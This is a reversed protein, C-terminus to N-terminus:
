TTATASTDTNGNYCVAQPARVEFTTPSITAGAADIGQDNNNRVDLLPLYHYVSIKKGFHKPMTVTDALPSFYQEKKLEILAKKQYYDTRIQNGMSSPVGNPANYQM